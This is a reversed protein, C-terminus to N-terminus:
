MWELERETKPMEKVVRSCKGVKMKILRKTEDIKTGPCHGVHRITNDGFLSEGNIPRSRTQSFVRSSDASKGMMVGWGWSEMEGRRRVLNRKKEEM